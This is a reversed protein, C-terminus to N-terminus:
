RVGHQGAAHERITGPAKQDAVIEPGMPTNRATSSRPRERPKHAVPLLRRRDIKGSAMADAARGVGAGTPMGM